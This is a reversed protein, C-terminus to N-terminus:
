KAVPHGDWHCRLLDTYNTIWNHIGDESFDFCMFRIIENM